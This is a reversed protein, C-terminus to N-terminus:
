ETVDCLGQSLLHDYLCDMKRDFTLRQIHDRELLEAIISDEVQNIHMHSLHERFYERAEKVQEEM